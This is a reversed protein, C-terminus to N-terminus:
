LFAWSAKKEYFGQHGLNFGQFCGAKEGEFVRELSFFMAPPSLQNSSIHHVVPPAALTLERCFPPAKRESAFAWNPKRWEKSRERVSKWFGSGLNGLIM